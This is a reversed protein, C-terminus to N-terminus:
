VDQILNGNLLRYPIAFPCLSIPLTEFGDRCLLECVSQLFFSEVVGLKGVECSSLEGMRRARVYEGSVIPRIDGPIPLDAVQGQVPSKWETRWKAQSIQRAIRAPHCGPIAEDSDDAGHYRQPNGHQPSTNNNQNVLGSSQAWM